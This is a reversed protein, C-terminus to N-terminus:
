APAALCRCGPHAPPHLDGTPFPDGKCVGGALANDEADPCAVGGNDVIWRSSAGDTM